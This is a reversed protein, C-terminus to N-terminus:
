SPTPTPWSWATCTCSSGSPSRRTAASAAQDAPLAGGPLRDRLDPGTLKDEVQEEFLEHVIM